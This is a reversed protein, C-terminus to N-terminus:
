AQSLSRELAALRTGARADVTGFRSRVVCDGPKLSPDTTIQLGAFAHIWGPRSKEMIEADRSSLVLELATTEPFLEDLAERCIKEVLEPPPEYGALLRRGIDLAISPLSTRVQESLRESASALNTFTESQLHQIESRFDVLQQEGFRAADAAGANRAARREREVEEETYLRSAGARRVRAAVLTRDFPITRSSPM